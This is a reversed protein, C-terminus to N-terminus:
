AAQGKAIGDRVFIALACEMIRPVADGWEIQGALVAGVSMLIGGVAVWFTKSAKLRKLMELM